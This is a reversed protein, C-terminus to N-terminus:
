HSPRFCSKSQIATTCTEVRKKGSAKGPGPPHPPPISETTDPEREAVGGIRGLQVPTCHELLDIISRV